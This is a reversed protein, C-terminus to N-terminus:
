YISSSLRDGLQTLKGFPLGPVQATIPFIRHFSKSQTEKVRRPTPSTPGSARGVGHDGTPGGYRPPSGRGQSDVGRRAGEAKPAKRACSSALFSFHDWPQAAPVVDGQERWMAVASPPPLLM